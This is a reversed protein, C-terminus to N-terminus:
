AKPVPAGFLQEDGRDVVGYTPRVLGMQADLQAKAEPALRPAPAGQGQGLTPQVNAAAAPSYAARPLTAVMERVMAMPAKRLTAVLEPAFDPRSALLTSREQEEDRRQMEARLRHVEALAKAATTKDEPDENAEPEDKDDEAAPEEAPEAPAGDLAALAAKAKAKEEDSANPDDLVAQLAKKIEDMNKVQTAAPITGLLQSLNTAEVDALRKAIADGGIAIGGDLSRVHEASVGRMEEVLSFFLGALQDVAAQAASVAGDSIPVHVNADTKREGSTVIRYALGMAADAASQDALTEFVGISGVVSTPKVAIKEAACALAYAASCASGEVYALLPVGAARCRARLEHTAEFCGQAMGGPSDIVLVVAKPKAALAADVRSLISDYSDFCGGRRSSLPGSVNVLVAGDVVRNEAPAAPFSAGFARPDLALPGTPAFQMLRTM